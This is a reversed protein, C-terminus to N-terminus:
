MLWRVLPPRLRVTLGDVVTDDGELHRSLYIALPRGRRDKFITSYKYAHGDAKRMAQVKADAVKLAMDGRPRRQLDDLDVDCIVNTELLMYHLVDRLELEPARVGVM